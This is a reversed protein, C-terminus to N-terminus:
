GAGAFFCMVFWFLSIIIGIVALSRGRMRELRQSIREMAVWNLALSLAPMSLMALKDVTPEYTRGFTVRDAVALLAAGLAGSPLAFICSL